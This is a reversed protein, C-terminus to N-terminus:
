REWKDFIEFQKYMQLIYDIENSTATLDIFLDYGTWQIHFVDYNSCIISIHSLIAASKHWSINKYRLTYNKIM